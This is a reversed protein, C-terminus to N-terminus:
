SYCMYVIDWDCTLDCLRTTQRDHVLTSGHLYLLCAVGQLIYWACTFPTNMTLKGWHHSVGISGLGIAIWRKADVHCSAYRHMSLALGVACCCCSCPATISHGTRLLPSYHSVVIVTFIVFPLINIQRIKVVQWDFRYHWTPQSGMVGTTCPMKHGHEGEELSRRIVLVQFM